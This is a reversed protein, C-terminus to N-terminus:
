ISNKWSQVMPFHRGSITESQTVNVVTEYTHCPQNYQQKTSLTKQKPKNGIVCPSHVSTNPTDQDGNNQVTGETDKIMYFTCRTTVSYSSLIARIDAFSIDAFSSMTHLIASHKKTIAIHTDTAATCGKVAESIAVISVFLYKALM